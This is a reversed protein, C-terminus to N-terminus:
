KSGAKRPLKAAPEPPVAPAPTPAQVDVLVAVGKRIHSQALRDGRATDVTEYEVGEVLDAVTVGDLSGPISQTMKIKM